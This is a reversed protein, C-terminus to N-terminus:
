SSAPESAPSELDDIKLGDILAEIKNFVHEASLGAVTVVGLKNIEQYYSKLPGIAEHYIRLRERITSEEDDPRQVLKEGNCKPTDCVGPKEPPSFHLSYIANCTPCVRRATLREVVEDDGIELDIALDLETNRAAYWDDLLQAQELTRPFGDLIYGAQCDNEELRSVVIQFALEDSVLHGSDIRRQVEIGLATGDRVQQRLIDGTSVHAVQLLRAIRKAQTGKGVGPAGLIVLHLIM